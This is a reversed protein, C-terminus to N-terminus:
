VDEVSLSLAIAVQEVTLGMALLPPIANQQAQEARDARQREQETHLRELKAQESGTRLLNGENDWWRLWRQAQNQYSGEWVGLEVGMLDIQYHGRDNPELRRYRTNVWNYVELESTKITYIAYYPIRIIREYVWFKGPKQNGGEPLRSLPTNDREESGDGSAFEIAILPVIYERWLVYSRRIEGDVLPPVNPIYFRWASRSRTRSARNRARKIGCDQWIAYQGDPHLTQLTTELSDTLLISQPHEQFNKVFTGDSDPLQTHDPFAPPLITPLLSDQNEDIWEGIASRLDKTLLISADYRFEFKQIYEDEDRIIGFAHDARRELTEYFATALLAIAQRRRGIVAAYMIMAMFDETSILNGEIFGQGQFEVIDGKFGYGKLTNLANGDTRLTDSLWGENFGVTMSAQRMSWRYEGDLNMYVSIPIEGITIDKSKVGEIRLKNSM